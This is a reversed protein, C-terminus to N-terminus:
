NMDILHANGHDSIFWANPYFKEKEMHAKLQEKYDDASTYKCEPYATTLVLKGYQYWHIHDTSTYDGEQPGEEEAEPDGYASEIEAGCDDCTLNAGEYHVDCAVPRFKEVEDALCKNACDPCLLSNHGDLYYIPYGGPWAYAPLTGDENKVIAAM